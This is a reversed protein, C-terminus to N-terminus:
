SCTAAEWEVMHAAFCRTRFAHRWGPARPPRGTSGPCNCPLSSRHWVVGWMCMSACWLRCRPKTSGGVRQLLKLARDVQKWVRLIVGPGGGEQSMEAFALLEPMGCYFQAREARWRCAHMARAHHATCVHMAHPARAMHATCTCTVHAHLMHMHCTCTAHAHPMHMHLARM